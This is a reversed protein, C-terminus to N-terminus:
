YLKLHSSNLPVITNIYEPECRCQKKSCIKIIKMQDWFLTNIRWVLEINLIISEYNHTPFWKILSVSWEKRIKANNTEQLLLSAENWFLQKPAFNKFFQLEFTLLLNNIQDLASYLIIKLLFMFFNKNKWPIFRLVTSCLNAIYFYM